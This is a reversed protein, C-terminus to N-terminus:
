KDCCHYSVLVAKLNIDRAGVEKCIPLSGLRDAWRVDRRPDAVPIEFMLYLRFSM